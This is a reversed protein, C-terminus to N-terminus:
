ADGDTDSDVSALRNPAQEFEPIMPATSTAPAERGTMQGSNDVESPRLSVLRSTRVPRAVDVLFIVEEDAPLGDIRGVEGVRERAWSSLESAPLEAIETTIVIGVGPVYSGTAGRVGDADHAAQALDASAVALGTATEGSAGISPTVADKGGVAVLIAVAVFLAVAVSRVPSSTPEAMLPDDPPTPEVSGQTSM